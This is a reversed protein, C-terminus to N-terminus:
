TPKAFGSGEVFVFTLKERMQTWEQLGEEDSRCLKRQAVELEDSPRGEEPRM